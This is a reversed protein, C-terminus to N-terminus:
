FFTEPTDSGEPPIDAPSVDGSLRYVNLVVHGGVAQAHQRLADENAAEYICFTRVLGDDTAEVIHSHLWVLGTFEEEILRLARQSTKPGLPAKAVDFLREIVYRPV